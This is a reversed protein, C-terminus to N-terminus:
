EASLLEVEFILVSNAPISGMSRSGYGLEAPIKLMAKSGVNLMMIGEDWGKIVQGVGIKTSFPQGRKFSNDFESGDLLTGRYNVTVSKGQEPKKGTGETIVKIGLGSPTYNMGLFDLNFLSM